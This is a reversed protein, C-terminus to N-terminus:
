DNITENDAKRGPFIIFSIALYYGFFPDLKKAAMM